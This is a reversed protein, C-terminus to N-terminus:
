HAALTRWSWEQGLEAGGRGEPHVHRTRVAEPPEGRVVVTGPVM